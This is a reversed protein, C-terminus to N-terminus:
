EGQDLQLDTTRYLTQRPEVVHLKSGIGALAMEHSMPHFIPQVRPAVFDYTAIRNLDPLSVVFMPETYSAIVLYDNSPSITVKRMNPVQHKYWLPQGDPASWAYIQQDLSTAIVYDSEMSWTADTLPYHANTVKATQAGTLGDYLFLTNDQLTLIARNDPSWTGNRGPVTFVPTCTARDFVTASQNCHVLFRDSDSGWTASVPANIDHSALQEQTKADWIRVTNDEATSLVTRNDSAVAVSCIRARHGHNEFLLNGSETEWVYIAGGNSGAVLLKGDPSWSIDNMRDPPHFSQLKSGTRSDWLSIPAPFSSTALRTGDPSYAAFYIQSGPEEITLINPNSRNLLYGWEWHRHEIPTSWLTEEAQELNGQEIQAQALRIQSVYGNYEAEERAEMEANRANYIRVYSFSLVGLLLILAAAVTNIITRNREYYHRVLEGPSYKYAQVLAGSQFRRIEEALEMASAYRESRNKSMAKRCIEVLERPADPEVTLIDDPEKGVVQLMVELISAGTFPPEGKLMEYLVAGLSYVDSREDIEDLRGSAQEPPMYNPTGMARGYATEPMQKLEGLQIDRLTKRIEPLHADEVGKLKAIGWDLVVTEGFEGVMINSPKIDRHIVSRSHAYAIANCLDILHPLLNLRDVLTKCEAIAHSLTRGRVFKMTYYLTGNNRRGLEYVPVISPHELQGTVRAEQLFRAAMSVTEDLSAESSGPESPFDDMLLEKLAVQRGFHQDHVLLVRGMGGRAYDSIFSYRGPIEEATSLMEETNRLFPEAVMPVTEIHGTKGIRISGHFTRTAQVDGGVADLAQRASGHHAEIAKDVLQDVFRLDDQNLAGTEVLIDGISRDQQLAWLAGAQIIKEAPVAKLQVAFIALLLNRDNQAM